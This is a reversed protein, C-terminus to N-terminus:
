NRLQWVAVLIFWLFIKEFELIYGNIHNILKQQLSSTQVVVIHGGLGLTACGSRSLGLGAATWRCTCCSELREFISKHKNRTRVLKNPSVDCHRECERRLVSSALAPDTVPCALFNFAISPFIL